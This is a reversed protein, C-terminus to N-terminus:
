FTKLFEVLADKDAPALETGYRAGEHGANSNGPVSTDLQFYRRDGESAVDSVFGVKVPDYVDYGRYFASPRNSVPELLDRLTPVSGNHLFPARLWVGDLPMNAYGFTKRFHQFRWPYGAYLASQNVALDYTYSDLRRRDTGIEAIPNVKGVYEGSFDRGSAGHCGVCYENYLAAGRAAKTGDISYPYKPPEKTLLWAEIRGINAVDLTPPTTGTGFAASKNREEVMTNNGDWHLEMGKRPGQLWVSPFDAPANKEQEPLDHMPFNFLVKASNFTDVRGPGWPPYDFAFSFRGALTLLRERMLAVAIPYVLYRDLLDLDQGNAQALRRAEPVVFEAAFKPDKACDFFFKEFGMIDLQMAPMGLYVRRKSGPGERVTSAHCVACNLFTKDLGQQHRKSMGIPLDRGDEFILGLSAYGKGPLHEACVQPLAQFIWYPFGSVREGGTSGYKFHEEIDAYETPRDVGFRQWLYAGLALALLTPVALVLAVGRVWRRRFLNALWGDQGSPTTGSESM